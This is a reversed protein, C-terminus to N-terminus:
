FLSALKMAAATSGKKLKLKGTFFATVPSLDGKLINYLDQLKVDIEIESETASESVTNVEGTGDLLISGEDTIFAYSHGAPPHADGIQQM